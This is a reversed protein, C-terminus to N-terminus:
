EPPFGYRAVVVTVNDKGGAQLAEDILNRCASEASPQALLIQAIRTEPVM